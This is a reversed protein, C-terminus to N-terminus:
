RPTSRAGGASRQRLRSRSFRGKKRSHIFCRIRLLFHYAALDKPNSLRAYEEHSDPHLFVPFDRGVQRFGHDLMQQATAGVVVWDRDKVPLGLLEDRVAGGVRYIKLAATM